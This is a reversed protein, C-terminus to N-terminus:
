RNIKFIGFPILEQKELLEKWDGVFEAGMSKWFGIAEDNPKSDGGIYEANPYLEDIFLILKRGIGQRRFKKLVRIMRIYINDSSTYNYILDGCYENDSYIKLHIDEGYENYEKVELM